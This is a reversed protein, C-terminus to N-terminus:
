DENYYREGAAAGYATGLGRGTVGGANRGALKKAKRLAAALARLKMQPQTVGAAIRRGTRTMALGAVAPALALGAKGLLASAAVYPAASVMASGTQPVRADFVQRGQEALARLPGGGGRVFAGKGTQQGVASLLQSPTFETPAQNRRGLWGAQELLKYQAYKADAARLAQAASGHVQSELVDTVAQEAEHLMVRKAEDDGAAFAQKRILSRLKLLDDSLVNGQADRRLMTAANDLWSGVEGRLQGTAMTARNGAAQKFLAQLTPQPGNGFVKPMIPLGKVPDYAQEFEDFMSAMGRQASSARNAGQVQPAVGEQRALTRWDGMGRARAKEVGGFMRGTLEEARGLVGEPNMQGPTLDVGKRMLSRAPASAQVGRTLARWAKGGLWPIAAGAAGGIAAGRLREGPDALLAGEAAGQSGGAGAASALFRTLGGAGLKAAGARAAGLGLGGVPATAAVEGLFAGTKGAGTSLLAADRQKASALDEDSVQGTLNGIHRAVNTMGQGIGERLRQGTGTGEIAANQSESRYSEALRQRLDEVAERDGAQLAARMAQQLQEPTVAM